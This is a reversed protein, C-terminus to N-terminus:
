GKVPLKDHSIGEIMEPDPPTVVKGKDIRYYCTVVTVKTKNTEGEGNVVLMEGVSQANCEFGSKRLELTRRKADFSVKTYWEQCCSSWNVRGLCQPPGKKRTAQALKEDRDAVQKKLHEIECKNSCFSAGDPMENGCVPCTAKPIEKKGKKSGKKKGAM